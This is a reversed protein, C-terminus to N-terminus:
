PGGKKERSRESYNEMYKQANEMNGIFHHLWIDLLEGSSGSCVVLLSFIPFSTMQVKVYWIKVYGRKCVMNDSKCVMNECPGRRLLAM